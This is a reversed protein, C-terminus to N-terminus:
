GSELAAAHRAAREVLAAFRARREDTDHPLRRNAQMACMREIERLRAAHDHRMALLHARDAETLPRRM